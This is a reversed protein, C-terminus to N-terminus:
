FRRSFSLSRLCECLILPGVGSGIYPSTVISETSVSRVYRKYDRDALPVSRLRRRRRRNFIPLPTNSDCRARPVLQNRATTSKCGHPARRALRPAYRCPILHSFHTEVGHRRLIIQWLGGRVVPVRTEVMVHLHSMIKNQISVHM